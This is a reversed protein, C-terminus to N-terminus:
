SRLASITRAAMVVGLGSAATTARRTTVVTRWVPTVVLGPTVTLGPAPLAVPGPVGTATPAATRTARTAPRITPDV